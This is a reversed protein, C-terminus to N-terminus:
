AKLVIPTIDYVNFMNYYCYAQMTKIVLFNVKHGWSDLEMIGFHLKPRLLQVSDVQLRVSLQVTYIEEIQHWHWIDSITSM